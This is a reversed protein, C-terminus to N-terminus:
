GTVTVEAGLNFIAIEGTPGVCGRAADNVEQGTMHTVSPMYGGDGLVSMGLEVIEGDTLLVAPPDPQWSTGAPWVISYRVGGLELMLCGRDDLIITGMVRASMGVREGPPPPPSTFVPGDIRGVALVGDLPESTSSTNSTPTTPAAATSTGSDDGCAAILLAAAIILWLPRPM